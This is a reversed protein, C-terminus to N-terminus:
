VISVIIDLWVDDLDDQKTIEVDIVLIPQFRWSHVNNMFGCEKKTYWTEIEINWM